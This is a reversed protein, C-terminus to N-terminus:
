KTKRYKELIQQLIKETEDASYFLNDDLNECFDFFTFLLGPEAIDLYILNNTSYSPFMLYGKKQSVFLFLENEINGINDKLMKYKKSGYTHILQRLLYIRDAKDFPLYANDPYEGIRGTKMFKLIGKLSFIYTINDQENCSTLEQVYKRFNEIFFERNPVGPAIYKEMFRQTLFPTFCPTMQFSYAPGSVPRLSATYELQSFINDIRSLLPTLQKTYRDFIGQLMRVSDPESTLYGKQLDSSLLCSYKKTIVAFPFIAINEARSAITDYYFYCNYLPNNGYLPLVQNLCNLNYNRHSHTAKSDNNLCIIHDIRTDDSIHGSEATLFSMLYYFDPQVLLRLHGKKGNLEASIIHSLAHNVEHRTNLLVTDATNLGSDFPEDPGSFHNSLPAQTLSFESFFKLVDKRRYYNDHGLLAIQYAEQLEAEEAPLLHLFKCIKTVIDASAPKRKGNIIKYMNSRDLGCYQALAYTKVDKSHVYHTLLESFESM